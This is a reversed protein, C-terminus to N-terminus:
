RRSATSKVPPCVKVSKAKGAATQSDETGCDYRPIKSLCRPCQFVQSYATYGTMAKGGCRDCRTGYLREIEKQVAQRVRQFASRLKDTDVPTHHNKAIFTAAPSRDIAIAKRGDLLASLSGSSHICARSLSSLICFIPSHLLAEKGCLSM